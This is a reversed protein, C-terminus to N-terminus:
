KADPKSDPQIYEYLKGKLTNFETLLQNYEERSVFNADQSPVNQNAQVKEFKYPQITPFGAGDTTKLYFIDNNEDFLAVASNPNMQYAKAGDMGNVRILNNQPTQPAQSTNIANYGNNMYPNNQMMPNGMNGYPSWGGMGMGMPNLAM